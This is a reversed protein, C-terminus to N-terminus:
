EETELNQKVIAIVWNKASYRIEPNAISSGLRKLSLSWTPGPAIPMNQGADIKDKITLAVSSRHARSDSIYLPYKIKMNPTAQSAIQVRIGPNQLVIIQSSMERAICPGAIAANM